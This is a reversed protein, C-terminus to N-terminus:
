RRSSCRRRAPLARRGAAPWLTTQQPRCGPARGFRVDAEIVPVPNVDRAPVERLPSCRPMGGAVGADGALFAPEEDRAVVDQRPDGAVEADLRMLRGIRQRGAQPREVPGPREFGVLHERGMLVAEAPEAGPDLLGGLVLPLPEEPDFVQRSPRWAARRPHQDSLNHAHGPGCRWAM